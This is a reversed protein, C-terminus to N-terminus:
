HAYKKTNIKREIFHGTGSKSGNEPLIAETQNFYNPSAQWV